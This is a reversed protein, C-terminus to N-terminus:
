YGRWIKLMALAAFIVFDLVGFILANSRDREDVLRPDLYGGEVRFVPGAFWAFFTGGLLGGMHGWFDIGPSLGMIMNIVLIFIVNGLARQAMAGLISRNRYLFIAEAGILGFIATSAGLSPYASFLFSIVNGAFGSLLYLALFRWHGYYSELSPGLALLAYMNFGIHLLSTHLFMPTFLRWLEGSIILENVKLGMAAALDQGLVFETAMQILFIIVTIGLLVYTVVPTLRPIRLTVYRPSATQPYEPEPGDPPPYM